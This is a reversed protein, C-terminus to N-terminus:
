KKRGDNLKYRETSKMRYYELCNRDFTAAEVMDCAFHPRMYM